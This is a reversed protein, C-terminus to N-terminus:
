TAAASVVDIVVEMSTHTMSAVWIIITFCAEPAVMMRTIKHGTATVSSDTSSNL